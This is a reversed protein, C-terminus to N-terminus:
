LTVTDSASSFCAAQQAQIPFPSFPSLDRPTRQKQGVLRPTGVRGPRCAAALGVSCQVAAPLDLRGELPEWWSQSETKARQAKHTRSDHRTAM